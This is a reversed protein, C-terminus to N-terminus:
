FSWDRHRKRVEVRLNQSKVIAKRGMWQLYILKTDLTRRM